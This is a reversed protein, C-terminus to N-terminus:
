ISQSKVMTIGAIAANIKPYRALSLSMKFKAVTIITKIRDARNENKIGRTIQIQHADNHNIRSSSGDCATATNITIAMISANKNKNTGTEEVSVTCVLFMLRMANFSETRGLPVNKRPM